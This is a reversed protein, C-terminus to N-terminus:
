LGQSATGKRHHPQQPAEARLAPHVNDRVRPGRAHLLAQLLAAHVPRLPRLATEQLREQQDSGRKGEGRQPGRLVM